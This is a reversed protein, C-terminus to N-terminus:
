FGLIDSTSKKSSIKNTSIQVPANETINKIFNNKQNEFKLIISHTKNYLYGDIDIFKDGISFLEKCDVKATYGCTDFIADFSREAPIIDHHYYRDTGEHLFSVSYYHNGNRVGSYEVIKGTYRQDFLKSNSNLRRYVILSLPYMEELHKQEIKVGIKPVPHVSVFYNIINQIMDVDLDKYASSPSRLVLSTNEIGVRIEDFVLPGASLPMRYLDVAPNLDATRCINEMLRRSLERTPFVIYIDNNHINIVGIALILGHLRYVSIVRVEHGNHSFEVGIM